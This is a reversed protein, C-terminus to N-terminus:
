LNKECLSLSVCNPYTQKNNASFNATLDDTFEFAMGVMHRWQMLYSPVENIFAAYFVYIKQYTIMISIYYPESCLYKYAFRM